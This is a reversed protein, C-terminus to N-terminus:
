QTQTTFSEEFWRWYVTLATADTAAVLILGTAPTLVYGNLFRDGVIQPFTVGAINVFQGKMFGPEAGFAFSEERLEAAGVGPTRFDMAGQNTKDLTALAVSTTKLRLTGTVSSTPVCQDIRVLVGSDAPNFIQLNAREAVAGTFTSFGNYRRTVVTRAASPTDIVVVPIVTELFEFRAQPEQIVGLADLVPQLARGRTIVGAHQPM